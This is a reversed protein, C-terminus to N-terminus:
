PPAAPPTSPQTPPPALHCGAMPRSLLLKLHPGPASPGALIRLRATSSLPFRSPAVVVVVIVTVAALQGHVIQSADATGHCTSTGSTFAISTPTLNRGSMLPTM